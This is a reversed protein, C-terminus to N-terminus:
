RPRIRYLPPIALPQPRWMAETAGGCWITDTGTRREVLETGNPEVAAVIEFTPAGRRVRQMLHDDICSALATRADRYTRKVNRDVIYDEDWVDYVITCSGVNAGGGRLEIRVPLGIVLEAALVDPLTLVAPQLV